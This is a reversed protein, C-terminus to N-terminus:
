SLWFVLAPTVERLVKKMQARQGFVYGVEKDDM